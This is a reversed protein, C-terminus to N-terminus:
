LSPSILALSAGTKKKEGKKGREKDVTIGVNRLAGKEDTM